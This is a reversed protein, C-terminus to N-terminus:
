VAAALSDAPDASSGAFSHRHEYGYVAREDNTMGYVDNPVVALFETDALGLARRAEIRVKDSVGPVDLQLDTLCDLARAASEGAFTLLAETTAEGIGPLATLILHKPEPFLFERVPQVQKPGRDRKALTELTAPLEHASHMHWLMVGAEQVSLLAGQVANWAMGNTAYNNVGDNAVLTKGTTSAKIDGVILLYAWPSRSRLKLMTAQLTKETIARLLSSNTMYRVALMQGDSCMVLLSYPDDLPLQTQPVNMGALPKFVPAAQMDTAITMIPHM